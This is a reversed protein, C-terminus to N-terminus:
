LYEFSLICALSSSAVPLLFESFMSTLQLLCQYSDQLETPQSFSMCALGHRDYRWAPHNHNHNHNHRIEAEARLRSDRHDDKVVAFSSLLTIAFHPQSVPQRLNRKGCKAYCMPTLPWSGLVIAETAPCFGCFFSGHSKDGLISGLGGTPKLRM